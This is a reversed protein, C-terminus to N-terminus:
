LWEFLELITSNETCSGFSGCLDYVECQQRPQAWFLNWENIGELWKLHKIKWIIDMVFRLIISPNHLSYTFNSEDENM